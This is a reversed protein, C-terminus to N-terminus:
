GGQVIVKHIRRNLIWRGIGYLVGTWAIQYAFYMILKSVPLIGTYFKCPVDILGAFPLFGIIGQMWDPFFPIPVSMGSLIIVMAPVLRAIGEGSITWLTSINIINTIACSIMIGGFTTVIWALFALVSAPAMMGYNDPVILLTVTFLPVARLLTPATRLAVARAFWQNCLDVPRCLEYAVNGTRILDQIESDGNWPQMAIMAQGIWIYTIAEQYSLPQDGVSYTYFAYFVMVKVAGFFFQTFVGAFAAARYQLLMLFRMKIISLYRKM